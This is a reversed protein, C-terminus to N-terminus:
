IVINAKIESKSHPKDNIFQFIREDKQLNRLLAVDIYFYYKLM